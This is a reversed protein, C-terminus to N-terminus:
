QTRRPDGPLRRGHAREDLAAGDAAAAAAAARARARAGRAPDLAGTFSRVRAADALRRHARARRAPPACLATVKQQGDDTTREALSTPNQLRLLIM